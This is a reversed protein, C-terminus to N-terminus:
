GIERPTLEISLSQTRRLIRLTLTTGIPWRSVHRHLADIGDVPADNVAVVLDGPRLDSQAAPGQADRAMVEAARMTPLDLARV